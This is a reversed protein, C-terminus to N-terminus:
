LERLVDLRQDIPAHADFRVNRESLHGEEPTRAVPAEMWLHATSRLGAHVVTTDGELKELASVLAPPYRTMDVAAIDALAERGSGVAARLPRALVPSLALLGRGVGGLWPASGGERDDRGLRGGDWWAARVCLDALLTPLGATTVAVTAVGVDDNRVHSLEHALVAELEVRDLLELLGTTVGVAAHKADRGSAFANPAVDDVVYVGPKPLGGAVCLGEVLNHLRAHALPDAPEARNLRLVLGEASRHAAFAAAVGLAVGVALGIMGLGLLVLVLAVLVAVVVGLAVLLAVARRRNAASQAAVLAAPATASPAVLPATM